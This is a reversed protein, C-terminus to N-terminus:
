ELQKTLAVVEGHLVEETLLDDVTLHKSPSMIKNIHPGLHESTERLEKIVQWQIDAVLQDIEKGFEDLARAM